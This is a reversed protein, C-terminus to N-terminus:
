PPQCQSPAPPPPAAKLLAYIERAESNSVATPPFQPMMARPARLQKLFEEFSLTTQALDPGAGGRGSIGHCGMCGKQIFLREGNAQTQAFTISTFLLQAFLLSFFAARKM